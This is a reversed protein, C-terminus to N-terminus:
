DEMPPLADHDEHPHLLVYLTPHTERAVRTFELLTGYTTEPPAFILIVRIGPGHEDLKQRLQSPSDVAYVEEAMRPETGEDGPAFDWQLRHLTGTTATTSPFLFLEWATGPRQERHRFRADPLFARYFLDEEGPPELRIGDPGTLGELLAYLRQVGAIPLAPDPEVRIFPDYGSETVENLYALVQVLHQGEHVAEGRTDLLHLAWEGSEVGAQGPLSRVPLRLPLEGGHGVPHRPVLEVEVRAGELPNWSPHTLLYEYIAGKSVRWPMDLVTFPDNYNSAISFPEFADAAYVEQGDDLTIRRSGAFVFGYGPLTHGTRTDVILEEVRRAMEEATQKGADNVAPTWRFTMEVRDGRPWLELREGDVPRGPRLGIFELGEHVHLPRALSIALAEYDHGSREGIVFFEVPLDPRTALAQFVVRGQSRDALLGPRLLVDDRGHYRDRNDQDWAAAATRAADRRAAAEDGDAEAAPLGRAACWLLLIGLCAARGSAARASCWAAPRAGRGTTHRLLPKM